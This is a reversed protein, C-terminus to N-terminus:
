DEGISRETRELLEDLRKDDLKPIILDMNKHVYSLERESIKLFNLHNINIEMDPKDRWLTPQRNKLWFIMSVTDPPFYKEVEVVKVGDKTKHVEEVVKSFGKARQFLSAVVESDAAMKGDKCAEAFEPHKNRWREITAVDRNFFKAMQEDTAGFALCCRQALVAYEPRYSSQRPIAPLRKADEKLKVRAV